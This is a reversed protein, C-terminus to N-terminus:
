YLPSLLITFSLLCNALFIIQSKRRKIIPEPMIFINISFIALSILAKVAYPVCTTETCDQM